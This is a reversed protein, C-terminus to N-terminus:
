SLQGRSTSQPDSSLMASVFPQREVLDDLRGDDIVTGADMYILRKCSHLLEPRHTVVIVLHDRMAATLEVLVRESNEKDLASTPEDVLWVRPRNILLRALGLRQLEGGSFGEAARGVPSDLHGRFGQVTKDLGVATIAHWLDDDSVELEPRVLNSRLSGRLLKPDQPLMGIEAGLEESTLLDIPTGNLSITGRAPKALGSLALLTTSKGSGSPGVVAIGGPGEFDLDLGQVVVDRGYTLDADDVSVRCGPPVSERGATREAARLRAITVRVKDVYPVSDNYQQYMTQANQAATMARVLLLGSAAIGSTDTSTAESAILAVAVGVLLTGMWYIPGVMGALTASRYRLNQIKTIERGLFAETEDWRNLTHLERASGAMEGIEEGVVVYSDAMTGHMVRTRKSLQRLGLILVSGAGLVILSVQWSIAFAIVVYVATRVATNILGVISGISRSAKGIQETAASLGAGSYASQVPFDARRFARVLDRRRESDWLATTRERVVTNALNLLFTVVVLTIIMPYTISVEFGLLDATGDDVGSTLKVALGGLALADTFAVALSLATSLLIAGRVRVLSADATLESDRSDLDTQEPQGRAWESGDLQDPETM